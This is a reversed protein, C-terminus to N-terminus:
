RDIITVRWQMLLKSPIVSPTTVPPMLTTTPAAITPTDTTETATTDVTTTAAATTTDATATTMDTITATTTTDVDATTIDPTTAVDSTPTPTPTTVEQTPGVTTPPSTTLPVDDDDFIAIVASGVVRVGLPSGVLLQLRVAILESEDAEFVDDDIISVNFCQRRESNSFLLVLNRELVFDIDSVASYFLAKNPVLGFM